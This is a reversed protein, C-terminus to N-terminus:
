SNNAAAANYLKLFLDRDDATQFLAVIGGDKDVIMYNYDAADYELEGADYQTDKAEFKEMNSTRELSSASVGLLLSKPYKM